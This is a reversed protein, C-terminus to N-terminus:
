AEFLTLVCNNITVDEATIGEIQTDVWMETGVSGAILSQQCIPTRADAATTWAIANSYQVASGVVTGTAAAQYSPATTGGAWALQVIIGENITTASTTMYGSFIALINGSRSPTILANMGGMVFSSTSTPVMSARTAQTVAGGGSATLIVGANNARTWGNGEDYLLTDGANLTVVKLVITTTGDYHEVTLTNAASGYNYFSLYKVNREVNSAPSPVVTTTTATTITTNQTNPTITGSANDAFSAHVMIEQAASTIVEIIASTGALLIM